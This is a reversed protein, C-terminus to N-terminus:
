PVRVEVHQQGFWRLPNMYFWSAGDQGLSPLISNYLSLEMVEAFRAEGTILLMRWNWMFNGVQGCTENYGYANPLQYDAGAAEWVVDAGWVNGGRFAFGRYLPCVGGHIYMKKETLNHWLRDLVELLSKDGTEMYVDAAGAYLYTYWVAHGVVEHEQRLPMRDQWCDTGGQYKGRIDIVLNALERPNKKAPKALMMALNTALDGHAKDKCRDVQIRPEVEAPLLGASKLNSVTQELLHHIHEKM